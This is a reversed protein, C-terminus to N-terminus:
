RSTATRATTASRPPPSSCAAPAPRRRAPRRRPQADRARAVRLLRRKTEDNWRQAIDEGALHVVGDRGALAAAPAPEDEPQWAVAEVGLAARAREPDRSLVTVEDGRESCRRRRDRRGIRGTAGTITVRM